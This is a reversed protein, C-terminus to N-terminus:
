APNVGHSTLMLRLVEESSRAKRLGLKRRTLNDSATWRYRLFDLMGSPGEVLPLHLKWAADMAAYLLRAPLNILKKRALEAIREVGLTGEGVSHFYGEAEKELVRIFVESVDDEHVFQMQPRAGDVSPLFPLRLIFRSLYNQVNPGYVICPRVVATKLDPHRKSFAEVMKEVEYKDSAYPYNHQKRPISEETLWQPNDPFAGFATTSSALIFHRSGCAVSSALVNATGLVNVDHMMRADRIPDVVFSLHIVRSVSRERFLRELGPDRVDLRHFDLKEAWAYPKRLDIGVIRSVKDELELFRMLRTGIYGSCGTIAVVSM